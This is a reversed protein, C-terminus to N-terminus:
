LESTATVTSYAATTLKPEVYGYFTITEEQIGDTNISVSYDTLCMNQLTIVEQSAKLQLHLRYGFNQNPLNTAADTLSNNLTVTNLAPLVNAAVAVSADVDEINKTSTTYTQVGCKAKNFLVEFRGDSKKRTLALTCENKIEAKLATRQGFYAVDEDVKGFTVDIGVLDSIINKNSTASNLPAAATSSDAIDQMGGADLYKPYSRNFIFTSPATNDSTGTLIRTVNTENAESGTLDIATGAVALAYTTAIKLEVTSTVIAFYITGSTIGTTGVTSDTGDMTFQVPDGTTLSHASACGIVESGDAISSVETIRVGNVYAEGMDMSVSVGCYDHETTISALVDRGLFYAM